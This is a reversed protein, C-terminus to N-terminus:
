RERSGQETPRHGRFSDYICNSLKREVWAAEFEVALEVRAIYGLSEKVHLTQRGDKRSSAAQIFCSSAIESARWSGQAAHRPHLVHKQVVRLWQSSCGAHVLTLRKV